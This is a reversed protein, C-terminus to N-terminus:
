VTLTTRSEWILICERTTEISDLERLREENDEGYHSEGVILTKLNQNIYNKGIWPLWKLNPIDLLEQDEM